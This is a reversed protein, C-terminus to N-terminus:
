AIILIVIATIIACALAGWKFWNIFKDYTEKAVQIDPQEALKAEQL